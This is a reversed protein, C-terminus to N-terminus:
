MAWISLFSTLFQVFGVIGGEDTLGRKWYYNPHSKQTTSLLTSFALNISCVCPGTYNASGQDVLDCGKSQPDLDLPTLSSRYITYNTFGSCDWTKPWKIAGANDDIIVQELSLGVSGGASFHHISVAGCSFALCFDDILEHNFVTYGLRFNANNSSNDACADVKLIAKQTASLIASLPSKCNYTYKLGLDNNTQTFNPM